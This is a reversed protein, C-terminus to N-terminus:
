YIIELEILRHIFQSLNSDECKMKESAYVPM